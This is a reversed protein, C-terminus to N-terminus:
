RDQRHGPPQQAEAHEEGQGYQSGRQGPGLTPAEGEEMRQRDDVQRPQHREEDEAAVAVRDRGEQDHERRRSDGSQRGEEPFPAPGPDRSRGGRQGDEGEGVHGDAERAGLQAGVGVRVDSGRQLLPSVPLCRGALVHPRQLDIRPAGLRVLEEAVQDTARAPGVRRQGVELSGGPGIGSVRPDEVVVAHRQGGQPPFRLGGLPEAPGNREVRGQGGRM